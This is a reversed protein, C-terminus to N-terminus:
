DRTLFLSRISVEANEPGLFAQASSNNSLKQEFCLFLCLTVLLMEGESVCCVAVRRTSTTLWLPFMNLHMLSAITGLWLDSLTVLCFMDLCHVWRQKKVKEFETKTRRALLRAQEFVAATQQLRAEVDGLRVCMCVCVDPLPHTVDLFGSRWQEWILLLSERSTPSSSCWRPTSSKPWNRWKQQAVRRHPCMLLSPPHGQWCVM